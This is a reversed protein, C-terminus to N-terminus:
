KPVNSLITSQSAADIGYTDMLQKLEAPNPSGASYYWALSREATRRFMRLDIQLSGQVSQERNLAWLDALGKKQEESGATTQLLKDRMTNARESAAQFDYATAQYSVM